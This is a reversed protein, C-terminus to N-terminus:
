RSPWGWPTLGGVSKLRCFVFCALQEAVSGGPGISECRVVHAFLIEPDQIRASHWSNSVNMSSVTRISSSIRFHYQVFSAEDSLTVTVGVSSMAGCPYLAGARPRMDFVM